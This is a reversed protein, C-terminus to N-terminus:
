CITKKFVLDMMPMFANLPWGFLNVFWELVYLSYRIIFLTPHITTKWLADGGKANLCVAKPLARKIQRYSGGVLGQAVYAEKSQGGHVHRSFTKVFPYSLWLPMWPVLPLNSTHGDYPFVRNPTETFVMLGGPKLCLWAEKLIPTRMAPPIHELVANFTVIDFSNSEFPLKSTDAIQTFSVHDSMGEDHARVTAINVLEGNPEVGQVSAAGLDMLVLASSGGGSGMDLIKKDKVTGFRAILSELRRRLYTPDQRREIEDLWWDGHEKVLMELAHLSLPTEVTQLFTQLRGHHRAKGKITIQRSNGSDVVRLEASPTKIM